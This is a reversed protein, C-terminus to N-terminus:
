AAGIRADELAEAVYKCAESNGPTLDAEDLFVSIGAETLAQYLYDAFARKQEGAFSIFVSAQPQPSMASCLARCPVGHHLAQQRYLWSRRRAPDATGLGPHLCTLNPNRLNAHTAKCPAGRHLVQEWCQSSSRCAWVAAGSCSSLM